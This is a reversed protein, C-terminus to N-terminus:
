PAIEGLNIVNRIELWSNANDLDSFDSNLQDVRLGGEAQETGHCKFCHEAFVKQYQDKFDGGRVAATLLTSFSLALAIIRSSKMPSRLATHCSKILPTRSM